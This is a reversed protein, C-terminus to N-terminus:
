KDSSLIAAPYLIIIFHFLNLISLLPNKVNKNLDIAVTGFIFVYVIFM